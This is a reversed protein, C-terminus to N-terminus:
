FWGSPFNYEMSGLLSGYSCRRFPSRCFCRGFVGVLTRGCFGLKEETVQRLVAGYVPLERNGHFFHDQGSQAYLLREGGPESGFLSLFAVTIIEPKPSPMSDVAMGTSATTAPIM